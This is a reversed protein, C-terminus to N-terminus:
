GLVRRVEAQLREHVLAMTPRELPNSSVCERILAQMEQSQVQDMVPQVPTQAHAQFVEVLPTQKKRRQPAIVLSKWRPRRTTRKEVPLDQLTLLEWLVCGLGYVDVPLGYPRYNNEEEEGMYYSQTRCVEPAVYPLTGLCMTLPRESTEELRRCFGFDFLRVQGDADFGVNAPKVDRYVVDHKHLCQLASTLDVAVSLIRLTQQLLLNGSSVKQKIQQRRWLVMKSELTTTLQQQILFLSSSSSSLSSIGYLEVIHPHAPLSALLEMETRLDQQALRTQRADSLTKDHLRKLALHEPLIPTQPSATTSESDTSSASCVTSSCSPVSQQSDVSKTLAPHHHHHKFTISYVDSFSFNIQCYFAM